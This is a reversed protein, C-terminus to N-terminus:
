EDEKMADIAVEMVYWACIIGLAVRIIEISDM